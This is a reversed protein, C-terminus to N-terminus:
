YVVAPGGFQVFGMLWLATLVAVTAAVRLLIRQGTSIHEV